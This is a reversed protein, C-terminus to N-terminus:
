FRNPSGVVRGSGSGPYTRRKAPTISQRITVSSVPVPVKRKDFLLGKTFSFFYPRVSQSTTLLSFM